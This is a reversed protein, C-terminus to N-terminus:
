SEWCSEAVHLLEWSCSYSGHTSERRQLLCNYVTSWLSASPFMETVFVREWNKKAISIPSQLSIQPRRPMSSVFQSRRSRSPTYYQPLIGVNRIVVSGEGESELSLWKVRFVNLAIHRIDSKKFLKFVACALINRWFSISALTTSFSGAKQTFLLNTVANFFAPWTRPGTLCKM